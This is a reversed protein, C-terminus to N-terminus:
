GRAERGDPDVAHTTVKACLVRVMALDEAQERLYHQRESARLPQQLIRETGALGELATRLRKMEETM